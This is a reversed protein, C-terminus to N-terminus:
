NNYFPVQEKLQGTPLDYCLGDVLQCEVYKPKIIYKEFGNHTLQEVWSGNNATYSLLAAWPVGRLWGRSFYWRQSSNRQNKDLCSLLLIKNSARTLCMSTGVKKNYIAKTGLDHSWQQTDSALACEKLVVEYQDTGGTIDMCVELDQRLQKLLFYAAVRNVSEPEPDEPTPPSQKSDDDPDPDPDLDPDPNSDPCVPSSEVLLGCVRCGTWPIFYCYNSGPPYDRLWQFSGEIDTIDPEGDAGSISAATLAKGSEDAELLKGSEDFIWSQAPNGGQLCQELYVKLKKEQAAGEHRRTLCLPGGSQEDSYAKSVLRYNDSMEWLYNNGHNCFQKVVPRERPQAESTVLPSPAICHEGSRLQFSKIDGAIEDAM